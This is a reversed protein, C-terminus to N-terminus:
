AGERRQKEMEEQVAEFLAEVRAWALASPQTRGSEWYTLTRLGVSLAKAMSEQSWQLGLRWGKLWAGRADVPVEPMALRRTSM